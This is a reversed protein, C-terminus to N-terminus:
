FFQFCKVLNKQEPIFNPLLSRIMVVVICVQEPKRGVAFEVEEDEVNIGGFKGFKEVDSFKVLSIGLKEARDLTVDKIQTSIVKKTISNMKRIIMPNSYDTAVIVRLCPPALDLIKNVIDDRDCIIVKM